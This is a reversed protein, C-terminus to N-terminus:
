CFSFIDIKIFFLIRVKELGSEVCHSSKLSHGSFTEFVKIETSDDLRYPTPTFSTLRPSFSQALVRLNSHVWCHTSLTTLEMKIQSRYWTGLSLLPESSIHSHSFSVVTYACLISPLASSHKGSMLTWIFWWLLKNFYLKRQETGLSELAHSLNM